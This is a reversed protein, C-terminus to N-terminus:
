DAALLQDLAALVTGVAIPGEDLKTEVTALAIAPPALRSRGADVLLLLPTDSAAALHAMPGLGTIAAECRQFLAVILDLREGLRRAMTHQLPFPAQPLAAALDGYLHKTSQGLLIVPARGAHVLARSAEIFRDSPWDEAAQWAGPALAVYRPGEPLLRLAIEAADAPLPMPGPTEPVSGLALSLLDFLREIERNPPVYSRVPRADSAIFGAAPGIFRGVALRKLALAAPLGHDTDIVLDFREAALDGTLLGLPPRPLDRADLVRDLLRATLSAQATRWPSEGRAVLSTIHAAPLNARLARLFPLRELGDELTESPWHVLVSLPRDSVDSSLSVDAGRAAVM